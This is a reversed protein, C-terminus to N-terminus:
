EGRGCGGGGGEEGDERGRQEARREEKVERGELCLYDPGGKKGSRGVGGGGLGVLM